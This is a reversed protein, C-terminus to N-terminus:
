ANRVIMGYKALLWGIEAIITMSSMERFLRDVIEHEALEKDLSLNHFTIAQEDKDRKYTMTDM